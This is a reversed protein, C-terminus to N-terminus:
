YQIDSYYIGNQTSSCNASKYYAIGITNAILGKWDAVGNSLYSIEEHLAQFFSMTFFGGNSLNAWSVEGPKAASAMLNGKADMFLRKLKALDPNTNSQSTLFNGPTMQSIGVDSNCCDGMVINLRAGKSVITRYIEELNFSNDPAPNAYGTYRLDIRPWDSTQNSWRYGHGRYIFIVIDNSNPKLNSLLTNVQSRTFQNGSIVYPQYSIKLTNAISEFENLLNKQDVACSNGIDSVLTNAVIVLHLKTYLRSVTTFDVPPKDLGCMKRLAIYQSEDTGFFRRLYTDTILNTTLLSFAKVRPATQTNIMPNISIYPRGASLNNNWIWLFHDPAYTNGHPESIFTPESGLLHFYSTGGYNGTSAKYKVNVVHYNNQYTYGVRMYADQENFYVLLGLYDIGDAQFQVEYLTQAVSCFPIFLFFVLCKLIAAAVPKM